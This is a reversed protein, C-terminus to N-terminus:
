QNSRPVGEANTLPELSKTVPLILVPKNFVEPSLNTKLPACISLEALTVFPDTM